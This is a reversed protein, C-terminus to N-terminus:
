KASAGTSTIRGSSSSGAAAGAASKDLITVVREASMGPGGPMGDAITVRGPEVGAKALQDTVHAVRAQYLETSVGEGRRINLAGPYEVFHRALVALDRRGLENLVPGNLVFEYPYLTHQALIANEIGLDNLTRVLEQDLQRDAATRADEECGAVLAGLLCLTVVQSVKM